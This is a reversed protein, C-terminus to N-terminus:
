SHLDVVVLWKVLGLDTGAGAAQAIYEAPCVPDCDIDLFGAGEGPGFGPLVEDEGEFQQLCAAYLEPSVIRADGQRGLHGESDDDYHQREGLRRGLEGSWRGGVVFGDGWGNCFRCQDTFGQEELMDRVYKRVTSSSAERDYTTTVFVLTHM